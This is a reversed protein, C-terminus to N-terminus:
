ADNEYEECTQKAMRGRSFGEGSVGSIRRPGKLRTEEIMM